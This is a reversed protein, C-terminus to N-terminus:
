GKAGIFIFSWVQETVDSAVWGVRVLGNSTQGFIRAGMGAIDQCFAVGAIQGFDGLTVTVPPDFDFRTATATLTPDATFRGWGFFVEGLDIYRADNVTAADLNTLNSTAPSWTEQASQGLLNLWAFSTQDIGLRDFDFVHFQSEFSQLDAEPPGFGPEKRGDGVIGIRMGSSTRRTAM